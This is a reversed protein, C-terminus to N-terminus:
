RLSSLACIYLIHLNVVPLDAALARWGSSRGGKLDRNDNSSFFMGSTNSVRRCRSSQGRSKRSGRWKRNRMPMIPTLTRQREMYMALLYIFM